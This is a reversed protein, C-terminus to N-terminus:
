LSQQVSVKWDKKKKIYDDVVKDADEQSVELKNGNIANNILIYPVAFFTVTTVVGDGMTMVVENSIIPWVFLFVFLTFLLKIFLLAVQNRIPLNLDKCADNFLDEPLVKQRGQKYHILANLGPKKEQEDFKKQYTSALLKVLDYYRTTFSRYCSWVYHFSFIVIGLEPLIANTHTALTKILGVIVVGLPVASGVLFLILWVLSFLTLFIEIFPLIFKSGKFKNKFREKLIRQRGHCLCVLPSSFFVDILFPVVALLCFFVKVCWIFRNTKNYSTFCEVFSDWYKIVIIPQQELNHLINQPVDLYESCEGATEKCSNCPSLSKCLNECHGYCKECKTCIWHERLCPSNLTKLNCLSKPFQSLVSELKEFVFCTFHKTHLSCPVLTNESTDSSLFCVCILRFIYCLGSLLAVAPHFSNVVSTTLFPFPLHVSLRVNLSPLMFLLLDVFGTFLLQVTFIFILKVTKCFKNRNTSSFLINGISSGVGLPSTDGVIILNTYETESTDQGSIEIAHSGVDAVDATELHNPKTIDITVQEDAANNGDSPEENIRQPISSDATHARDSASAINSSSSETDSIVGPRGTPKTVRIADPLLGESASTGATELQNPEAIDETDQGVAAKKGDCPEDNIRLPISSDATHARDSASPIDSSPSETDSIVGPRGTPKTVRIADPLLGESASTGATELQNPEAIDETDQGVAAKKGDCPEDNIRLPISSDATHARDSASPIDSSPSETDSIVGPRGTPKTVRIADPLLGESASTGATELQNPEAIDETDQGVAAKKGDCPEDNIRLPISSDATHARDSASPIDSSPSETDSIVGPCSIPETDGADPPLGDYSSTSTTEESSSNVSSRKRLCNRKTQEENSARTVANHSDFDTDNTDGLDRNVDGEQGLPVSSPRLVPAHSDPDTPKTTEEDGHETPPVHGDRIAPEIFGGSDETEQSPYPINEGRKKRPLKLKQKSPRFLLFISPSYVVYVICIVVAVFLWGDSFTLLEKNKDSAFSSNGAISTDVLYVLTQREVRVLTLFTSQNGQTYNALNEVYYLISQPTHFTLRQNRFNTASNKVSTPRFICSLKIAKYGGIVFQGSYINQLITQATFFAISGQSMKAEHDTARKLLVTATSNTHNLKTQNACKGSDVREEYMIELKILGGKALTDRLAEGTGNATDVACIWNCTGENFLDEVGTLNAM